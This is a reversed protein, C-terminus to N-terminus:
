RIAEITTLLDESNESVAFVVFKTPSNLGWRAFTVEITDGPRILFQHDRVTFRYIDASKHMVGRIQASVALADAATTLLTDRRIDQALLRENRVSIDANTVTRFEEGIFDRLAREAPVNPDLGPLSTADQTTWARAYGMTLRWIPMPTSLRSIGHIESQLISRVVNNSKQFVGIRYTGNRLLILFGNVSALLDRLVNAVTVDNNGSYLNLPYPADLNMRSFSSLELDDAPVLGLVRDFIDQVIDACTEILPDNENVISGEIDCTLTGAPQGGVKFYGGSHQSIFKGLAPQNMPDTDTIDAVDGMTGVTIDRDFTFGRDYVAVVNKIRGDNVQYILEAPNVLVPSVQKCLGWLRPKPTDKINEDGELTLPDSEFDGAYLTENIRRDLDASRDAMSLTLVDLTWSMGRTKGVFVRGFNEIPDTLAGMRVELDRGDFRFDTLSDEVEDGIMIDINGFSSDTVTPEPGEEGMNIRSEVNLASVLGRRYPNGGLVVGGPQGFRQQEEMAMAPDYPFLDVIWRRPISPDQLLGEIAPPSSFDVPAPQGFMTVGFSTGGFMM